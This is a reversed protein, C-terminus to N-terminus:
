QRIEIFVFHSSDSAVYYERLTNGTDTTQWRYPSNGLDGPLIDEFREKALGAVRLRVLRSVEQESGEGRFEIVGRSILFQHIASAPGYVRAVAFSNHAGTSYVCKVSLENTPFGKGFFNAIFGATDTSSHHTLRGCACHLCLLAPALIRAINRM